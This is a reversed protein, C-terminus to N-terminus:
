GGTPAAKKMHTTAVMDSVSSSARELVASNRMQSLVTPKQPTTTQSLVLGSCTQNATTDMTPGM